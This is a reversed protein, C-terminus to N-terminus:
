PTSYQMRAHFSAYKSKALPLIDKYSSPMLILVLIKRPRVINKAMSNTSDIAIADMM